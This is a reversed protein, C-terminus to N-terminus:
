TAPKYDKNDIVMKAIIKLTNEGLVSGFRAGERSRELHCKM